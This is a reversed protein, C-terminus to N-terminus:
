LRSQADRHILLRQKHRHTKGIMGHMMTLFLQRILCCPKSSVGGVNGGNGGGMPRPGGLPRAQRWGLSRSPHPPPARCTAWAEGVVGRDYMGPSRSGSPELMSVWSFERLNM